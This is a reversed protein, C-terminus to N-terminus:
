GSRIRPLKRSIIMQRPHGDGAVELLRGAAERGM